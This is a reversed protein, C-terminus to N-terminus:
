PCRADGQQIAEIQDANFPLPECGHTTECVLDWKAEAQNHCNFCNGNFQNVVLTTGRASITTGSSTVGLAFFEWDNTLESWGVRRKVMAEFPVLQIVTGVPYTGGNAAQAVAIAEATHGLKNTIRYRNVKDWELICGFDDAQMELDEGGPPADTSAADPGATSADLGPADDDDDEGCGGALAAFGVSALAAFGSQPSLALLAALNALRRLSKM